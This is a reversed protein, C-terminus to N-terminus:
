KVTWPAVFRTAWRIGISFLAGLIGIVGMAVLLIDIDLTRSSNLAVFGLGATAALLEAAVLTTWANGLAIRAGAVITPLATKIVVRTLITAQSAGMTKAARILLSDVSDVAEISNMVWPVLAAVFVVSIRATDGIGLWVITIPIWALPPVPRILQFIPWAIWRFKSWWAIAIGLPVGVVGALLWAQIVVSLSALVHGGLTAGLYPESLLQVFREAVDQPPPLFLPQILSGPLTLAYWAAILAITALLSIALSSRRSLDRRWISVTSRKKTDAPQPARTLLDSTM